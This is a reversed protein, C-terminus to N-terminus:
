KLEAGGLRLARAEAARHLAILAGGVRTGSSRELRGLRGREGAGTGSRTRRERRRSGTTPSISGIPAGAASRGAGPPTSGAILRPSAVERYAEAVLGAVIRWDPKRDIRVGIWGKHGVYPPRFFQEPNEEVLAEQVGARAPIWM